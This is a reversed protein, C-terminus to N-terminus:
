IADRCSQTIYPTKKETGSSVKSVPIYTELLNSIKETLIEWSASTLEKWYKPGILM